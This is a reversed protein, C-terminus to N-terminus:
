KEQAYKALALRLGELLIDNKRVGQTAALVKIKTHMDPPLYITTKDTNESKPKPTPTTDAPEEHQKPTPEPKSSISDFGDLPALPKRRKAM